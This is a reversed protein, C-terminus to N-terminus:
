TGARISRYANVGKVAACTRGRWVNVSVGWGGVTGEEFLGAARVNGDLGDAEGEVFGEGGGIGGGRGVTGGFRGAGFYGARLPEVEGRELHAIENALAHQDDVLDVVRAGRELIRHALQLLIDIRRRARRAPFSLAQLRPKTHEHQMILVLVFPTLQRLSHHLTPAIHRRPRHPIHPNIIRPLRRIYQILSPSSSFLLSTSIQNIPINILM